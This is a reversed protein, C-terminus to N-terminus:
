CAVSLKAVHPSAVEPTKASAGPCIHLSITFESGKGLWDSAVKVAGSHMEVLSKVISLGM